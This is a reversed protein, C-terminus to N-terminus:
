NRSRVVAQLTVPVLRNPIGGSSSSSSVADVTVPFYEKAVKAMYEHDKSCSSLGDVQSKGGTSSIRENGTVVNADPTGQTGNGRRKLCEGVAYVWEKICVEMEGMSNM